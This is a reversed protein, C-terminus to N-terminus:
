ANEEEGKETTQVYEFLIYPGNVHTDFAKKRLGALWLIDNEGDTIIYMQDREHRPIKEDIFIDKIKKSGRLGKYTMRDGHRRNRIYLPFHLLAKPYTFVDLQENDEPLENVEKVSLVGGHPLVVESPVKRIVDHFDKHNNITQTFSFYIDDYSKEILLGQPFHIVKNPVEDTILELFIEEHIYSVNEPIIRHYLYDLTLRLVRRQLSVAYGLLRHRSITAKTDKESFTVIDAVAKEAQQLLYDEDEQITESLQQVTKHLQDNKERLVPVVRLRVDNRTYDPNVNSPDIRPIISYAACYAEIEKKTVALLPRVITADGLSREYPIGKLGQINTKQMLGMVMTEIQDDGHHGLAVYDADYKVVIDQLVEYRLTRSAVQTGVKHAQKYKNVDIKASEFDIQWTACIRRVYEVDAQAERGRLQHDVTVAVLTFDYAERRKYLFHLLAMSDPGGSVGVVITSHKNMLQHKTLFEEVKTEMM